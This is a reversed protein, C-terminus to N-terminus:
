IIVNKLWLSVSHFKNTTSPRTQASTGWIDLLSDAECRIVSVSKFSWISIVLHLRIAWIVLMHTLVDCHFMKLDPDFRSNSKAGKSLARNVWWCWLGFCQLLYFFRLFSFAMMCTLHDLFAQLIFSFISSVSGRDFELSANLRIFISKASTCFVGCVLASLTQWSMLGCM